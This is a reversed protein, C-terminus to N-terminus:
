QHSVILLFEMNNVLTQSLQLFLVWEVLSLEYQLSLHLLHASFCSHISVGCERGEPLSRKYVFFGLSYKSCILEYAWFGALSHAFSYSVVNPLRTHEFLAFVQFHRSMCRATFLFRLSISCRQYFFKTPIICFLHAAFRPIHESLPIHIYTAKGTHM